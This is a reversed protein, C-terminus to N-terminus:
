RAFNFTLLSFTFTAVPKLCKTRKDQSKCGPEQMRCRTEKIKTRPEQNKCGPEKIKKRKEKKKIEREM